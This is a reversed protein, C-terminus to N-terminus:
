LSFRSFRREVQRSDHVDSAGRTRPIFGDPEDLADIWTAVVATLQKANRM